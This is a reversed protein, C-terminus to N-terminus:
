SLTLYYGAVSVSVSDGSVSVKYDIEPKSSGVGVNQVIYQTQAVGAVQGTITTLNTTASSGTPRFQVVDGAASPIFTVVLNAIVFPDTTTPIPTSLDIATFSTANGGSLVSANPSVFFGKYNVANLVSAATFHTSIDTSVCGILRYSDYGYPILPAANSQLTLIGGPQNIGRSDAILYILYNTSAALTGQDLGNVGVVASNIFLPNSYSLANTIQAAPAPILGNNHFTGNNPYPNVVPYFYMMDINDNYDRCQGPAIAIVTTSAVSVNLGSIYLWPQLAVSTLNNSFSFM